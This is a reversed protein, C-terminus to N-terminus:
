ASLSPYDTYGISLDTDPAPYFTMPDPENLVEGSRFRELLDPNAISLVGFAVADAEGTDILKTATSLDLGQNAIFVGEFLKSMKKWIAGECSGERTCIFAIERKNLQETAFRFLSEPDSDGMEHVDCAPSFHVGVRKAGWVDSVADLVDLLFRVRNEISGGYEDRRLNTSDQLFQDILYGNAAHLEVGDFGAEKANIAAQRYDEITQSIEELTLARPQPYKVPPRVLSANMDLGLDSASVPQEGGIVDSITVRGAHWLQLFMKGSRSHVADTVKKWGAIQEQNWIGPGTAYGCGIASIATAESIILGASARQYYYEVMLDTPVHNKDARCRTLPAMIVRNSLELEGINVPDFLSPRTM